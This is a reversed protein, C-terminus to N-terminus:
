TSQVMKTKKNDPLVVEIEDVVSKPQSLKKNKILELFPM